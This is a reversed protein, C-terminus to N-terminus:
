SIEFKVSELWKDVDSPSLKELEDQFDKIDLGM